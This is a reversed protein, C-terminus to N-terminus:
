PTPAAAPEMGPAPPLVVVHRGDEEVLSAGEIRHTLAERFRQLSDADSAEADLLIRDVGPGFEPEGLDLRVCLAALTDMCHLRFPLGIAMAGAAEMDPAEFFVDFSATAVWDRETEDEEDDDEDIEDLCEASARFTVDDYSLTEEDDPGAPALDALVHTNQAVFEAADSRGYKEAQHESSATVNLEAELTARYLPM